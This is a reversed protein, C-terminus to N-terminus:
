SCVFLILFEYTRDSMKGPDVFAVRFRTCDLSRPTGSRLALSVFDAVIQFVLCHQSGIACNIAPLINASAYSFSSVAWLNGACALSCHRMSRPPLSPHIAPLPLLWKVTSAFRQPKQITRRLPWLSRSGDPQVGRYRHLNVSLKFEM